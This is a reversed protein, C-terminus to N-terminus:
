EFPEEYAAFIAGESTEKITVAYTTGSTLTLPTNFIIERWEGDVSLTDGNTTGSTLPDGTPLGGSTAYISATLTGPFHGALRFLFFKVSTATYNGSAIFTQGAIINLLDWNDERKEALNNYYDRLTPM